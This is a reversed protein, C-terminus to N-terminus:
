LPYTMQEYFLRSVAVRQNLSQDEANIGLRLYLRSLANEVSKVTVVMRDAIAQNSWGEAVLGLLQLQRETLQATSTGVRPRARARVQPDIAVGGALVVDIARRLEAPDAVSEKLLYAWGEAHASPLRALLGPYVHTSLLVVGLDPNRRKVALGWRVGNTGPLLIDVVAADFETGAADADEASSFAGVVSISEMQSIERELLTLLLAQDEIIVVRITEADIDRDTITM